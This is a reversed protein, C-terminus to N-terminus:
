SSEADENASSLKAICRESGTHDKLLTASVVAECWLLM